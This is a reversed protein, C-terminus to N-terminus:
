MMRRVALCEICGGRCACEPEGNEDFEPPPDRPDDEDARLEAACAPCVQGLPFVDVRELCDVRTHVRCLDCPRLYPACIM